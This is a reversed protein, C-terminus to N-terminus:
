KKGTWQFISTMASIGCIVFYFGPVSFDKSLLSNWISKCCPIWITLVFLTWRFWHYWSWVYILLKNSILTTMTSCWFGGELFFLNMVKFFSNAVRISIPLFAGNTIMVSDVFAFLVDVNALSTAVKKLFKKKSQLQVFYCSM